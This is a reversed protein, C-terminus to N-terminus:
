GPAPRWWLWRPAQATWVMDEAMLGVFPEVDRENLAAVAATLSTVDGDDM